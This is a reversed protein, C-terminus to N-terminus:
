MTCHVQDNRLVGLYQTVSQFLVNKVLYSIKVSFPKNAGFFPGGVKAQLLSSHRYAPNAYKKSIDSIQMWGIDSIEYRNLGLRYKRKASIPQIDLESIWIQYKFFIASINILWIYLNVSIDDRIKIATYHCVYCQNPIHIVGILLGLSKIQTRNIQTRNTRFDMVCLLSLSGTSIVKFYEGVM